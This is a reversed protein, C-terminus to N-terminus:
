MDNRDYITSDPLRSYGSVDLCPHVDSVESNQSSLSQYEVCPYEAQTNIGSMNERSLIFEPLLGFM